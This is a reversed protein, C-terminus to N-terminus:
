IGRSDSYPEHNYERDARCVLEACTAKGGLESDVYGCGLLGDVFHSDHSQGGAGLNDATLADTLHIHRSLVTLSFEDGDGVFGFPEGLHIVLIRIGALDLREIGANGTVCGRKAALAYDERSSGIHRMPIEGREREEVFRSFLLKDFYEGFVAIEGYIIGLIGLDVEARSVEGLAFDEAREEVERCVHKLVDGECKGFGGDCDVYKVLAALAHGYGKCALAIIGVAYIILCTDELGGHEDDSGLISKRM